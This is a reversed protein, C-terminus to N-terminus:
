YDLEVLRITTKCHFYKQKLFIDSLLTEMVRLITKYAELEFALDVSMGEPNFFM